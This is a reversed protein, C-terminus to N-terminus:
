RRHFVGAGKPDICYSMATLTGQRFGNKNYWLLEALVIFAEGHHNMRELLGGSCRTNGKGAIAYGRCYKNENQQSLSEPNALLITFLYEKVPLDIGNDAFCALSREVSKQCTDWFLDSSLRQINDKQTDDVKTPALHGLMESAMIVDYGNETAAKMPVRYCAWKKEFPMMLEYRYIDNKKKSPAAMIKAYIGDSRVATVKM